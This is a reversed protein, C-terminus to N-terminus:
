PSPWGAVIETVGVVVVHAHVDVAKERHLGLRGPIPIPLLEVSESELASPVYLGPDIVIM